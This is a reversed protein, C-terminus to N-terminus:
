IMQICTKIECANVPLLPLVICSILDDVVLITRDRIPIPPAVELPEPEMNIIAKQGERREMRLHRITREIEPDLPRIEFSRTRRM